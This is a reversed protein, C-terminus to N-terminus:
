CAFCFPYRKPLRGSARYKAALEEAKLLEEGHHADALAREEEARMHVAAIENKMKEVCEAKKKELKEELARLDSEAKANKAKEWASIKAITRNHRHLSKAKMNEEWAKILSLTREQNLKALVLDRNLSGGGMSGVSRPSTDNEGETDKILTILAKSSDLTPPCESRPLEQPERPSDEKSNSLRDSSQREENSRVSELFKSDGGGHEVTQQEEAM